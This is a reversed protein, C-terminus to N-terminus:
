NRNHIIEVNKGLFIDGNTDYLLIIVSNDGILIDNYPSKISFVVSSNGIEVDGEADIDLAESNNGLRVYGNVSPHVLDVYKGGGAYINNVDANDGFFVNGAVDIIGNVTVNNGASLNGTIFISGDFDTNDKIFVDCDIRKM